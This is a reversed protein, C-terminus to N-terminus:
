VQRYHLGCLFSKWEAKQRSSEILANVEEKERSEKLDLLCTFSELGVLTAQGTQLTFLDELTQVPTQVAHYHCPTPLAPATPTVETPFSGYSGCAMELLPKLPCLESCLDM